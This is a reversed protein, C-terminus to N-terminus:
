NKLFAFWGGQKKAKKQIELFFETYQKDSKLIHTILWNQLFKLIMKLEADVKEFDKNAILLELKEQEMKILEVFSDHTRKHEASEKYEFMDMLVEETSFHLVTYNLLEQLIVDLRQKFDAHKSDYMTLVELKNILFILKKHQNDIQDLGISYEKSWTILM